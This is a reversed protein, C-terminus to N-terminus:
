PNICKLYYSVSDQFSLHHRIQCKLCGRLPHSMIKTSSEYAGKKYKEIKNNNTAGCFHWVLPCYNFNSAVFSDYITRRASVDLYNSIRALANLQRSAKKCISSVHLSFNLKNDIVVGMVKVHDDSVIVTSDNLILSRSRNGDLQLNSIM